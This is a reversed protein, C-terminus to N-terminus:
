LAMINEYLQQSDPILMRNNHYETIKTLIKKVNNCDIHADILCCDDEPMDFHRRLMGTILAKQKVLIQPNLRYYTQDTVITIIYNSKEIKWEFNIDTLKALEKQICKLVHANFDATRYNRPVDLIGRLKSRNMKFFGQRRFHELIMYMKVTYVSTCRDTVNKLFKTYGNTFNCLGLMVEKNIYATIEGTRIEKGSGDKKKEVIFKGFNAIGILVRKEEEYRLRFVMGAIHELSTELEKYSDHLVGFDSISYKFELSQFMRNEEEREVLEKDSFVESLVGQGSDGNLVKYFRPQLKELIVILVKYDMITASPMEAMTLGYPQIITSM